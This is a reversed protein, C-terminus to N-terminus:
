EGGLMLSLIENAFSNIVIYNDKNEPVNINKTLINAGRKELLMVVNLRCLSLLYTKVNDIIIPTKLEMTKNNFNYIGEKTNYIQVNHLKSIPFAKKYLIESIDEVNDGIIFKELEELTDFEENKGDYIFILNKM